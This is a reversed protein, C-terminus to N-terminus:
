IKLSTRQGRRRMGKRDREEAKTGGKKREREKGGGTEMQVSDGSAEFANAWSTDHFCGVSRPGCCAQMFIWTWNNQFKEM